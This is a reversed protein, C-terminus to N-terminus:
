RAPSGACWAEMVLEPHYQRFLDIIEERIPDHRKTVTVRDLPGFGWADLITPDAGAELFLRVLDTEYHLCALALPTKGGHTQTAHIAAGHKLLLRAIKLRGYLCAVHLLTDGGDNRANVDAGDELLRKVKTTNGDQVAKILHERTTM